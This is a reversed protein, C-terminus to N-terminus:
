FKKDEFTKKELQRSLIIFIDKQNFSLKVALVTEEIHKQREMEEREDEEYLDMDLGIDRFDFLEFIKGM